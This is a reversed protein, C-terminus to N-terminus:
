LKQALADAASLGSALAAAVTPAGGAFDGCFFVRAQSVDIHGAAVLNALAPDPRPFAAGWRHLAPGSSPTPLAGDAPFLREAAGVLAACADAEGDVSGVVQAAVSWKAPRGRDNSHQHSPRLVDQHGRRPRADGSEM